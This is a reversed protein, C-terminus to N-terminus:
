KGDDRDELKAIYEKVLRALETIIDFYFTIISVSISVIVILLGAALAGALGAGVIVVIAYLLSEIM